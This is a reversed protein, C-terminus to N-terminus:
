SLPPSPVGEPHSYSQSHLLTGWSPGKLFPMLSPAGGLLVAGGWGGLECAKPVM